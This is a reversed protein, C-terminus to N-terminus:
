AAPRLAALQYINVVDNLIYFRMNALQQPAFRLYILDVFTRTGDEASASGDYLLGCRVDPEEISIVGLLEQISIYGFTTYQTFSFAAYM